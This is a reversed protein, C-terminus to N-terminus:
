SGSFTGPKTTAPHFGVMTAKGQIIKKRTKIPRDMRMALETQSIGSANLTESLTELHLSLPPNITM